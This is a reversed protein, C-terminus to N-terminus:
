GRRPAGADRSGSRGGRLSRSDQQVEHAEEPGESSKRRRHYRPSEHGASLPNYSTQLSGPERRAERLRLELLEDALPLPVLAVVEQRGEAHLGERVGIGLPAGEGERRELPLGDE